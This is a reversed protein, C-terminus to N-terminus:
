LNWNSGTGATSVLLFFKFFFAVDPGLMIIKCTVVPAVGNAMGLLAEDKM